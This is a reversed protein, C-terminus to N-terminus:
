GVDGIMINQWVVLVENGDVTLLYEGSPFNGDVRLINGENDEFFTQTNSYSVPTAEIYSYTNSSTGVKTFCLAVGLLSVMLSFLFKGLVFDADGVSWCIGLVGLIALMIGVSIM